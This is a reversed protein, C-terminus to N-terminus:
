IITEYYTLKTPLNVLCIKTKVTFAPCSYLTVKDSKTVHVIEKESAYTYHM